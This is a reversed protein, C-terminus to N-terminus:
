KLLVMKKTKDSDGVKLRYFYVGSASKIGTEDTGDWDVSYPGAFLSEDVLTKVTQGLINFVELKVDEAGNVSGNIYFDITTVPNFPNPRNQYLEFNDPLPPKPIVGLVTVNKATGTTMVAKSIQVLREDNATIRTRSVFPLRLIDALGEAIQEGENWPHECHILVTMTGNGNDSSYLKFGDTATTLQPKLMEVAGPNYSVELEVGAINIPIEAEINMTSLIGSGSVEDNLIKITAFDSIPSPSPGPSIPLGFIANIIGVLDVVNVTDNIVVDGASFQRKSLDYNSIIYGVVSVLDAVNIRRDLNVDGWQDVCIMGSDTRLELSPVNPDPNISEWGNLINLPSCGPEAFEDVTFAMYLVASTSGAVISDNALGFSIVRIDGSITGPNSFIEWNESRDSTFISDLSFDDANYEMDYQIGFVTKETIISIPVFVEDLGPVGGSPKFEESSTTFLVDEDFGEVVVSVSQAGSTAGSDDTAQFTFLFNGDQGTNPQFSFTGSAIGGAGTVVGNIGFSANATTLNGGNARITVVGAEADSATVTFSVLQGQSINYVTPTITALVPPNNEDPDIIIIGSTDVLFVSSLLEQPYITLTFQEGSGLTDRAEAFETTKYTDPIFRTTHLFSQQGHTAAPNVVFRVTGLYVGITDGSEPVESSRMGGPVHPRVYAPTNAIYASDVWNPTMLLRASDRAFLSYFISKAAWAVDNQYLLPNVWGYDKISDGATFILEWLGPDYVPTIQWELSDPAPYSNDVEHSDLADQFRPDFAIVPYLINHDFEFLYSIGTVSSDNRIYIPIEVTDGPKGFYPKVFGIAEDTQIQAKATQVAMGILLLVILPVVLRRM